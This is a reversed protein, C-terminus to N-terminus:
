EEAQTPSGSRGGAPRPASDASHRTFGALLLLVAGVTISADAVNFVPWWRLDIFDIVAGSNHRVLRDVLNGCAGGLLGGMAVAAPLSATRSATRGLGLLVVVLVIAGLVLVPTIGRGLGFAAGPNFTLALRLTGIVHIPDVTHHLAWTKTLQDVVVVVTAVGVILARRPWARISDAPGGDDDTLSRIGQQLRGLMRVRGARVRAPSSPRPPRGSGAGVVDAPPTGM